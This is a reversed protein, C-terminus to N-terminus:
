GKVAWIGWLGIMTLGIAFLALFTWGWGILFARTSRLAASKERLRWYEAAYLALPTALLAGIPTIFISSLLGAGMGILISRWPVGTERLKATLILNDVFSGVIALISILAFLLWDWGDMGGTLASFLMYFFASLWIIAIGPFIPIVLGMLGVLMFTLTLAHLLITLFM